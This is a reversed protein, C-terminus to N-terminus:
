SRRREYGGSPRHTKESAKGGRSLNESEQERRRQFSIRSMHTDNKNKLVKVPNGGLTGDSGGFHFQFIDFREKRILKALDAIVGINGFSFLKKHFPLNIHTVGEMEFDGESVTFVTNGNEILYKIYPIHFNKFHSARSAAMLIKKM